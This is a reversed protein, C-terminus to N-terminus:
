GAELLIIDLLGGDSADYFNVVLTGKKIDLGGPWEFGFEDGSSINEWNWDSKSISGSPYKVEHSITLKKMPEGGSIRFQMHLYDTKLPISELITTYDSEKTNVAVLTIKWKYVDTYLQACDKYNASRLLKLFEYTNINWNNYNALVFQYKSEKAKESADEYDGLADFHEVSQIYNREDFYWQALKYEFDNTIDLNTGNKYAATLIHASWAHLFEGQNYYYDAVDCYLKDIEDIYEAHLSLLSLTNFVDLSPEECQQLAFSYLMSGRRQESDKYDIIESYIAASDIYKGENELFIAKLYKCEIIQEASDKYRLESIKQFESISDDYKGDEKLEMARNYIDERIAIICDQIKEESDMFNNLDTFAIIADAYEGNEMLSVAKQYGVFPIVFYVTLLAVIISISVVAASIAVIKRTRKRAKEALVRREEALHESAIRKEEEEVKIEAIKHQCALILQDADKWDKIPKLLEIAAEYSRIQSFANSIRAKADNYIWDKRCIEAKELCDESLKASDKYHLIPKFLSSAGRFASETKAATMAMVADKYIKELRAAENRENIHDIYGKMAAALDANAFRVTKQYNAKGDFPNAYNALQVQERVRLEAMLKGLYAEACEPDMDLVKECYEDASNWDGDELFMFARKLLPAVNQVPASTQVVTEKVVEPKKEADLVKGVGRILDQIFGIKAMDYCQLVSLQEPLDYPDMDRYCPLLLKSHDKKMMAIFRSWENKVWVANLHEAKTGVVIMVKASNLAAFIYPEYQTGVVDELTIRAFFVRRGQEKLQYYIEQALTSDVTRNGHEDSEKYCIFVDYPETNQSTSLIGRQVEAIKAADKQYQRRTIGDSHEVAALYDVDELFSDFSARHCTPLWEYTGPDEVYEIGFRSLACCWHAEADAPDERVIREYVALAKDFEGIRRFHNGRNFADARQEDDVKPFTMTCGCYECTGFTRDQAVDVDGGCMKCKLIAM